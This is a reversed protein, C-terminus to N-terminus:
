LWWRRLAGDIRGLVYGTVLVGLYIWAQDTM